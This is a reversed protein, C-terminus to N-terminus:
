QVSPMRPESIVLDLGELRMTKGPSFGGRCLHILMLFTSSSSLATLIVHTLISATTAGSIALYTLGTCPRLLSFCHHSHLALNVALAFTRPDSQVQPSSSSLTKPPDPLDSLPSTPDM